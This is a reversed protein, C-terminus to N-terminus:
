SGFVADGKRRHTVSPRRREVWPPAVAHLLLGDVLRALRHGPDDAMARGALLRGRAGNGEWWAAWALLALADARRGAPASRAVGSLLLRGRELLEDDPDADFVADMASPDGGVLIEEPVTGAAPSLTLLISDRLWRDRLVDGLRALDAPTATDPRALLERWRALASAAEAPELRLASGSSAAGRPPSPPRVEEETSGSAGLGRAGSGRAGSASERPPEVDAVLAPEDPALVCGRAVLHTAAPGTLAAELSHGEAPCCTLDRCRYSRWSTAGVALVDFVHLGLRDAERRVERVLPRHPLAVPGTGSAPPSVDSVVLVVVEHENERQLLELQHRVVNRRPRHPPLDVRSIVGVQHRPGHMGVVVLSERPRYGLRYFAMAVLDAMGARIVIPETLNTNTINV